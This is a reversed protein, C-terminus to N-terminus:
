SRGRALGRVQGRHSGGGRPRAVRGAGAHRGGFFLELNWTGPKLNLTLRPNKVKFKFGPVQFQCRFQLGERARAPLPAATEKVRTGQCPRPAHALRRTTPPFRSPLVNIFFAGRMTESSGDAVSITQASPSSSESTPTVCSHSKGADTTPRGTRVALRM